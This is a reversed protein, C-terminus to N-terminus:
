LPKWQTLPSGDRVVEFVQNGSGRYYTKDEVKTKLLDEDGSLNYFLYRFVNVNSIVKLDQTFSRAGKPWRIALFAGFFDVTLTSLPIEKDPGISRNEPTLGRYRYAGHDGMLIIVADSDVKLIYDVLDSAEDSARKYIGKYEDIWYDLYKWAHAWYEKDILGLKQLQPAQKVRNPSHLAGIKIFNLHSNKEQSSEKIKRKVKEIYESNKFTSQTSGATILFYAKCLLGKKFLIVPTTACNNETFTYDILDNIKSHVLDGDKLLYQIAYGNKKFITLVPNYDNGTIIKRAFAHDALGTVAKYYHHDMLYTGLLSTLTMNYNSYTNDYVVFDKSKLGSEFAANNYDYILKMARGSHFSELLIFYVNPWAKFKVKNYTDIKALSIKVSDFEKGLTYARTGLQFFASGIMALLVINLLKFNVFYVLSLTLATVVFYMIVQFLVNPMSYVVNVRLLYFIIMVSLTAIFFDMKRSDLIRQSKWTLRYAVAIIMGGVVGFILFTFVFAGLIDVLAFMNYNIQFVSIISYTIALLFFL